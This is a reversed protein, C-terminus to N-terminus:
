RAYGEEKRVRVAHRHLTTRSTTFRSRARACRALSGAALRSSSADVVGASTAQAQQAAAFLFFIIAGGTPTQGRRHRAIKLGPKTEFHVLRCLM